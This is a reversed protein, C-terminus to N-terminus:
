SRRVVCRGISDFSTLTILFAELAIGIRQASVGPAGFAKAFEAASQSDAMLRDELDPLPMHMEIPNRIPELAQDRLSPARGDWFFDSKWALNFLPMANREGAEGEVGTSFRRRDGFGFRADHCSACSQKQDRSLRTDHFLKKGLAVREQTLPFDSPLDPV